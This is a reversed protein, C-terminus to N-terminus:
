NIVLKSEDMVLFNKIGEMNGENEVFKPKSNLAREPGCKLKILHQKPSQRTWM